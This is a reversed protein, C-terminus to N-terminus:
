GCVLSERWGRIVDVFGSSPDRVAARSPAQDVPQSPCVPRWRRRGVEDGEERAITRLRGAVDAMEAPGALEAATWLAERAAELSGAEMLLDGLTRAVRLRDGRDHYRLGARILDDVADALRGSGRRLRAREELAVAAAEADGASESARLVAGLEDDPADALLAEGIEAFRALRDDRGTRVGRYLSLARDRHGAKRHARAAHLMLPASDPRAVLATEFPMVAGQFEGRRELAGGFSVLSASLEERDPPPGLAAVARRLAREVRGPELSGVAARARRRLFATGSGDKLCSGAARLVLRGTEIEGERHESSGVM